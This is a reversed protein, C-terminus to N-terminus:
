ALVKPPRAVLGDLLELLIPAGSDGSRQALRRGAGSQVGDPVQELATAKGPTLLAGPGRRVVCVLADWGPCGASADLAWFGGWLRRM